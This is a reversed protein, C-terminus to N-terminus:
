VRAAADTFINRRRFAVPSVRLLHLRVSRLSTAFHPEQLPTVASTWSPPQLGKATAAQEIMAAVYNRTVPDLTQVDMRDTAPAFEIPALTTLADSLDALAFRRTAPDALADVIAGMRGEESPLVRSLVYASVDRGAARALRKLAAKERPTVRIQLQETRAAM